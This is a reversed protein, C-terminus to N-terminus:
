EDKIKDKIKNYQDKYDSQWLWKTPFEYKMLSAFEKFNDNGTGSFGIKSKFSYISFYGGEHYENDNDYDVNNVNNQGVISLIIEIFRNDIKSIISSRDKKSLSSSFLSIFDKKKIIEKNM